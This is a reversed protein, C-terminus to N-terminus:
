QSAGTTKAKRAERWDFILHMVKEFAQAEPAREIQIFQMENPTSSCTFHNVGYLPSAGLGTMVLRFAYEEAGITFIVSYDRLNFGCYAVSGEVHEGRWDFAFPKPERDQAM